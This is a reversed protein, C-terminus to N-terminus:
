MLVGLLVAMALWWLLNARSLYAALSNWGILSVILVNPAPAAQANAYLSAFAASSLWDHAEVIQRHM